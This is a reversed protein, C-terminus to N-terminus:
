PPLFGPSERFARRAEDGITFRDLPAIRVGALGREATLGVVRHDFGKRPGESPLLKQFILGVGRMKLDGRRFLNVLDYTPRPVISSM